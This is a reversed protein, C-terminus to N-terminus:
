GRFIQLCVSPRETKLYAYDGNILYHEALEPHAAQIDAFNRLKYYLLKSDNPWWVRALVDTPSGPNEFFALHSEYKDPRNQLNQFNVAKAEPYCRQQEDKAWAFAKKRIEALEDGTFFKPHFEIINGKTNM